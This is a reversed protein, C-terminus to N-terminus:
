KIRDVNDKRFDAITKFDPSLKMLWLLELNRHCERELKRSSRIGNLYGWLYLKLMAKPDYPPRGEDKPESHTFGLQVLDLADVFADVFRVENQKGVYDDLVEPLFLAQTRDSGEVYDSM